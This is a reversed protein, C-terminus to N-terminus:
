VRPTPRRAAQAEELSRFKFVARPYTRPSITWYRACHRLFREFAKESSAPARAADMEEVSRFKQVRM